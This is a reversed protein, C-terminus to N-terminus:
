PLETGRCAESTTPLDTHDALGLRLHLIPLGLMLLLAAFPLLFRWPYAMIVGALRHLLGHGAETRTKYHILPLRLANVRPGLIALLASLFTLGYL